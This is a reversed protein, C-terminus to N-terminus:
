APVQAAAAATEAARWALLEGYLLVRNRGNVKARYLAQDAAAVLAGLAVGVHASDAIGISITGLLDNGHWGVRMAEYSLRLREALVRAPEEGVGALLICFEEGGYRTLCDGTRVVSTMLAAGRCLVEDGAQHGYVDNVAKFFDVDIMMLAVTEGSRAARALMRTAEQEFSRRNLLGTLADLSALRRLDDALRYTILLALALSNAMQVLSGALFALPHVEALTAPALMLSVSRALALVGFLSFSAAALRYASRLPQASDVMLARACALHVLGYLVSNAALRAPEHPELMGLWVNQLLCLLALLLAVTPRAPKGNFANIGLYLTGAGAGALAAFLAIAWAPMPRQLFVAAGFSLGVCLSSFAWHRAGRATGAHLSVLAFLAAFLLQIGSMVAMITPIDLRVAGLEISVADRVPPRALSGAASRGSEHV